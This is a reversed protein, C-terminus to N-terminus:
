FTGGSGMAGLLLGCSGWFSIWGLAFGVLSGYAFWRLWLNRQLYRWFAAVLGVAVALGGCAVLSMLGLLVPTENFPPTAFFRSFLSVFILFLIFALTFAGIPFLVLGAIFLLAKELTRAGPGPTEAV